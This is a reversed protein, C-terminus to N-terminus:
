VRCCTTRSCRGTPWSRSTFYLDLAERMFQQRGGNIKRICYNLALLYLGRREEERFCTWHLELLNKAYMFTEERAPERLATLLPM